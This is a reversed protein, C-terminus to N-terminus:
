TGAATSQKGPVKSFSAQGRYNVALIPTRKRDLWFAIVAVVLNIVLGSAAIVKPKDPPTQLTSVVQMAALFVALIVVGFKGSFTSAKTTKLYLILGGFLFIMELAISLWYHNWLGLGMKTSDGIAIPLDPVHVILDLIYHSFIGIAVVTGALVKNGKSPLLIIFLFGLLSWLLLAVLSHSFPYSLFIFPSTATFNPMVRFKEIGLLVFIPWLIDAFQVALFLIGLSIASDARKLALGVGYHGVFM